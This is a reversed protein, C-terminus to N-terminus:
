FLWKHLLRGPMFAFAGAILIDGVYVGILNARHKVLNGKRVAFYASPVSYLVLLCFLHIFGFHGLFKSGIQAPMFLAVIATVLMLVMFYKGILRHLGTGKKEFLLFTGLTFALLVTALHIYSLHLYSM